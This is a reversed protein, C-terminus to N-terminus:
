ADFYLAFEYPHPRLRAQSVERNSKYDIWTEILDPTFVGGKLLFEHDAELADLAGDLSGPVHQIQALGEESLEFLDVDLPQGPDVRNQNGDLGAMRLASIALDPNAGPDPPRFTSPDPVAWFDPTSLDYRADPPFQDRSNFDVTPSSFNVGRSFASALGDRFVSRARAIGNYDLFIIWVQRVGEQDMRRGVDNVPDGLEGDPQMTMEM